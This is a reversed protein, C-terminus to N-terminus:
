RSLGRHGQPGPSLSSPCAGGRRGPGEGVPAGRSNQPRAGTHVDGGAQRPPHARAGPRPHQSLGAARGCGERAVRHQRKQLLPPFAFRGHCGAALKRPGACVGGGALPVAPTRSNVFDPSAPMLPPVRPGRRRARLECGFQFSGTRGPAPASGGCGPAWARRARAPGAPLSAARPGRVDPRVHGCLPHRRAGSVTRGLAPTRDPWARWSARPRPQHPAAGRSGVAQRPDPVALGNGETVWPGPGPRARARCPRTWTPRRACAPGAGEKAASRARLVHDAARGRPRRLGAAAPIPYAIPLSAPGPRPRRCARSPAARRPAPPPSPPPPRPAPARPAPAPPPGSGPAAPRAGPARGGSGVQGLSPGM